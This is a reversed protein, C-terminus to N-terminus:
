NKYTKYFDTRNFNYLTNIYNRSDELDLSMYTHNINTSFSPAWSYFTVFKGIEENYCLNWQINDNYFIFMVDKKFANYHTKVDRFGIECAKEWEKLNINDNLYKGIIHDSIIEFGNQSLRWIKKTSTDVGYILGSPSKLVSNQWISGHADSLVMPNQPLVIDTNIYAAGGAGAAAVSRENVPIQIIGHEMVGVLNGGSEVLKVLAGYTKPMDQYNKSQFVRFGNKWGGNYVDSFVIRTDYQQKIYPMDPLIHYNKSSLSTNCAGNILQSEPLKYESSLSLPYLPYFGREKNFIIKESLQYKNIDRMCLNINSRVFVTLWHGLGISNIDSRSIKKIGYEYWTNPMGFTEGLGGAKAFKSDNPLLIAVNSGDSGWQLEALDQEWISEANKSVKENYQLNSLGLTFLSAFMNAVGKKELNHPLGNEDIYWKNRAKYLPIIENIFRYGTPSEKDEFKMKSIVLFNDNWSSADVIDDNTPLEPDIHNRFIRHTFPCIYCDGRYCNHIQSDKTNLEIRDSISHYSSKNYSRTIIQQDRWTKDNPNYSEKRINFVDGFRLENDGLGVYAGFVGRIVQDRKLDFPVCEGLNTNTYSKKAEGGLQVNNNGEHKWDKLVSIFTSVDEAFGAQSSYYDTGNTKIKIGSPMNLFTTIGSTNNRNQNVAATNTYYRYKQVRSFGVANLAQGIIDYHFNQGLFIQNYLPERVVAEPVIAAKIDIREEPIQVVAREQVTYEGRINIKKNLFSEAFYSNITGDKIVPINGYNNNTKGIAIGQGLIIPTRQQRVFFYGRINMEELKKLVNKPVQFQVGILQNLIQTEKPFQCVGHINDFDYPKNNSDLIFGNDNYNIHQIDVPLAFPDNLSRGRVNFVSSLSYNNLIFVIGFRYYEEPWYGTFNYINKVNYYSYSNHTSVDNYLYDINGITDANNITPYINWALQKLTEYDVYQEQVNGFFLRNQCIAQTKVHDCYYYLPNLDTQTISQKPEKGFIQIQCISNKIPFDDLIKFYSILDSGDEGSTVRSYYVQVYDYTSDLKSLTFLVSKESNEDEMGMRISFPDNLKGIHCVVSSSEGVFDTENNDNDKLKFYFHYTGCPLNGNEELGNFEIIPIQNITKYLSVDLQLNNEDYLSTDKNGEHDPVIFTDNEATSFRTNILTPAHQDDNIILNVSGDPYNQIDINVPNQHDYLLEETNFDNISFDSTTNTNALLNKLPVYNNILNGQRPFKSVEVSKIDLQLLDAM